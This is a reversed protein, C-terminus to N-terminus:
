RFKSAIQTKFKEVGENLISRVDFKIHGANIKLLDPFANFIRRCKIISLRYKEFPIEAYKRIAERLSIVDRTSLIIDAVLYISFITAMSIIVGSHFGSIYYSINPHLILLFFLIFVAWGISFQLCIYGKLNFRKDSYDWWKKNFIKEMAFGTLFELTTVVITSVVVVILLNLLFYDTPKGIADKVLVVSMAGLGYIPIFFGNLFGRNVFKGTCLSVFSTEWIWGLFSYISFYLMLRSFEVM